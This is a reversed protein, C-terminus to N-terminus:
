IQFYLFITEPSKLAVSSDSNFVKQSKTLKLFSKTFSGAYKLFGLLRLPVSKIKVLLTLYKWFEHQQSIDTHSKWLIVTEAKFICYRSYSWSYYTTSILVNDSSFKELLSSFM